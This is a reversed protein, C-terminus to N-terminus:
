FLFNSIFGDIKLYANLLRQKWILMKPKRDDRYAIRIIENLNNAVVAKGLSSSMMEENLNSQAWLVIKRTFLERNVFEIIEKESIAKNNSMRFLDRSFLTLYFSFVNPLVHQCDYLICRNYRKDFYIGAKSVVLYNGGKSEGGSRYHYVITNTNWMTNIYPSMSLNFSLDELERHSPFLTEYDEDFAHQICSRKYLHGWMQMGWSHEGCYKVGLMLPMVDKKCILRESYQFSACRRRVIDFSDYVFDLSLANHALYDDCDVFCIYRGQAKLFGDRRAKVVGENPKDIIFIRNDKHAYRKCKKLSRDSSGDNVLIIEIDHFDQKVISRICKGIYKEQNYIPVIVSIEPNKSM